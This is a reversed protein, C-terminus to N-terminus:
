DNKVLHIQNIFLRVIIQQITASSLFCIYIRYEYLHTLQSCHKWLWVCQLERASQSEVTSKEMKSSMNILFHNFRKCRRETRCWGPVWAATCWHVQPHSSLGSIHVQRALQQVLCASRRQLSLTVLKKEEKKKFLGKFDNLLESTKLQTKKKKPLNEMLHIWPFGFWNRLM